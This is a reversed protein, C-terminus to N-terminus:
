NTGVKQHGVRWTTGTWFFTLITEGSVASNFTPQGSSNMWATSAVGVFAVTRGGTGDQILRLQYHGVGPPNSITLTTNATLTIKQNQGNTWTITAAAGSNGCDYEQFAWLNRFTAVDRNSLTMTGRLEGGTAPYWLSMSIAALAVANPDIGLDVTSLSSDLSAGSDGAVTVTSVSGNYSTSLISAFINATGFARLKRGALYYATQDGPVSFTTASIYTPTDGRAEWSKMLSEDRMIAQLSRLWDDVTAPSGVLDSGAPSNSATNTSLDLITTPIAM